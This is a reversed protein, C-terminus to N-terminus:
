GMNSIDLVAWWEAQIATLYFGERGESIRGLRVALWLWTRFDESPSLQGGLTPDIMRLRALAPIDLPGARM